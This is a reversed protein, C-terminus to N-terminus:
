WAEVLPQRKAERWKRRGIVSDPSAEVEREVREPTSTVVTPAAMKWALADAVVRDGHNDRAGSPDEESSAGSHIINGSADYEFALCEELAGFSRNTCEGVALATMYDRHLVLINKPNPAWGPNDSDLHSLGFDSRPRLHINRYGLELVVQGFKVGPGAHEWALKAGDGGRDAFFRCLSVVYAAFLEPSMRPTAFELVKEGTTADIISCCSNTAGTGQSVDASAGYRRRPPDGQSDLRCWLKLEGGKREVFKKPIGTDGDYALDGETYPPVCLAQLRRILAQDYVQSTSGQPDIDIHMAMDRSSRVRAEGDYWPSRLGPFPGGHPSGDLVFPYDAHFEYGPDLGEVRGLEPSYRYLGRAKEPNRTWHLVEKRICPNQCLNFFKTGVGYHTSIVLRPGVDRTNSWIAVDDGQLAFEDLIVVGRDGVTSRKTTATGNIVSDTTPYFISLKRKETSFLFEPLNKQIFGMKWFLSGKNKPSDVAMETHSINLFRKNEFFRCMWDQAFMALWTGGEKRSKPWLMDERVVFLTEITELLVEEQRPRTIFPGVEGDFLDPNFQWGFANIYFLIDERCMQVVALKYEPNEDCLQLLRLRWRLNAEPGRPVERHYTGPSLVSSGGVQSAREM